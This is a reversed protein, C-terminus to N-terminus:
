LPTISHPKMGLAQDLTAVPIRLSPSPHEAWERDGQELRTVRSVTKDIDIKGGFRDLRVWKPTVGMACRVHRTIASALWELREPEEVVLALLEELSMHNPERNIGAKAEKGGRHWLNVEAIICTHADVAAQVAAKNNDAADHLSLLLIEKGLEFISAADEFQTLGYVEVLRGVVPKLEELPTQCYQQLHPDFRAFRMITGLTRRHNDGSEQDIEIM